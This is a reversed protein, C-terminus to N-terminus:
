IFKWNHFKQLVYNALSWDQLWITWHTRWSHPLMTYSCPHLSVLLNYEAATHQTYNHWQYLPSRFIAKGALNFTILTEKIYQYFPHFVATM